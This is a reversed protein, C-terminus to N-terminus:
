SAACKLLKIAEFNQVGGGVRKRVYFAVYPKNTYPDRLVTTGVRDAILYGRNFDGFAIPYANAGIDSMNDDETVPYGLLIPPQGAQISPQWLYAKTDGITKLKRVAAATARNMIFGANARYGQKLTGVLSILADTGNYTGDYIDAAVATATYGLSGWAYSANAVATYALIGKPKNVGNGSIFAAGEEEAFEQAIEGALWDAININSDELITQTTYANAYLEMAPFQIEALTPTNTEARTEREGVWGSTAGGQSILKKYVGATSTVVQAIQRMASVTGQVRTIVPDMYDPVTYGGDADGDTRLAAKMALSKLAGEGEGTRFFTDFAKAYAQKEPTQNQADGGISKAALSASIKDIAAQLDTVSANIRDVKEEALVDAKKAEIAVLRADNEAKFEHFTKQLDTLVAKVENHDTM